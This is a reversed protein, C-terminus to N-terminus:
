TRCRIEVSGPRAYEDMLIDGISDAVIVGSAPNKVGLIHGRVDATVESNEFSLDTEEMVCDELVLGKCYCLPQTGIIRCRVFRLNEGYWGLYEGKVVSDTVTVNKGHWFADKTDLHSDRIVVNEAYQFSYKGKMTLHEVDMDRCEFFPYESTLTCRRVQLDRCKWGFEASVIDCGTLVTRDCERLAKIGHLLSDAITLDEDYWLAARCTETMETRSITSNKMHWFPYRLRCTCDTVTLDATEKFASEGDAPGDFVCHSVEAGRLGYLAREEDFTKGNIIM